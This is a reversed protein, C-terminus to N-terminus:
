LDLPFECTQGRKWHRPHPLRLSPIAGSPGSRSFASRSQTGKLKAYRGSYPPLCIILADDSDAFIVSQLGHTTVCKIQSTLRGPSTKIIPIKDTPLCFCGPSEPFPGLSMLAMWPLPLSHARNLPHLWNISRCDIMDELKPECDCWLDRQNAPNSDRYGFWPRVRRGTM